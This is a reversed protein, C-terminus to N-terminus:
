QGAGSWGLWDLVRLSLEAMSGENALQLDELGEGARAALDQRAVRLDDQRGAAADRGLREEIVEIPATLRLVRLPAPLVRRLGELEPRTRITWAVVFLEVGVARYNRVVAARNELKVKSWDAAPRGVFWGLWDLDIAGYAAGRRELDDALQAALTSKGTGYIGTILLSPPRGDM